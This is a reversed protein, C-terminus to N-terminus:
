EQSAMQSAERRLRNNEQQLITVLQSARNGERWARECELTIEDLIHKTDALEQKLEAYERRYAILQHREEGSLNTTSVGTGETQEKSELANLRQLIPELAKALKQSSVDDDTKTTETKSELKAKIASAVFDTLTIGMTKSREMAAQKLGERGDFRLNLQCRSPM